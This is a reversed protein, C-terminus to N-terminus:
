LKFKSGLYVQKVNKDQTIEQPTGTKIIEGNHIIYARDVLGLTDRVNHDTVLVGVNKEKVQSVLEGIESISIPDIGALPEDLLLFSPQSALARAIEVRRREGGSLSIAEARRLHSISFEALLDDLMLKIKESNSENIELVSRINQEVTMGRFISSEQPLYGLGNQARLYVPFSTIDSGNLKVVGLDASILGMIIYFCTTKGAGNPGLLGVIEGRNINLSINRIIPKNKISKSLNRILLGDNAVVIKPKKKNLQKM